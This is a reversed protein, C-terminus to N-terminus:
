PEILGANIFDQRSDGPRLGAAYALEVAAFEYVSLSCHFSVPRMMYSDIDLGFTLDQFGLAHGMEHAAEYEDTSSPLCIIAAWTVSSGAEYYKHTVGRTCGQPTDYVWVENQPPRPGGQIADLIPGRDSTESYTFTLGMACPIAGDGRFDKEACVTLLDRVVERWHPDVTNLFTVTIQSGFPFGGMFGSPPGLSLPGDGLFLAEIFARLDLDQVKGINCQPDVTGPCRVDSPPGIGVDNKGRVRVYYDVLDVDRAPPDWTLHPQDVEIVAVDSTGPQHGIEVLFAPTQAADWTFTFTNGNLDPNTGVSLNQPAPPVSPGPTPATPSGGDGGCAAALTVLLALLPLKKRHM